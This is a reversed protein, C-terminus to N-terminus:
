IPEHTEETRLGCSQGIQLKETQVLSYIGSLEMTM